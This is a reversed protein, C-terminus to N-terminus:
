SIVLIKNGREMIFGDLPTTKVPDNKAILSGIIEGMLNYLTM